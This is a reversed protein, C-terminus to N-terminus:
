FIIFYYEVLLRKAVGDGVEPMAGVGVDLSGGGELM